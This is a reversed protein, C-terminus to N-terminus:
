SLRPLRENMEFRVMQAQNTPHNGSLDLGPVELKRYGRKGPM